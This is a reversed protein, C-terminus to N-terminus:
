EIVRKTLRSLSDAGRDRGSTLLASVHYFEALSKGRLCYQHRKVHMQLGTVLYVYHDHSLRRLTSKPGSWGIM